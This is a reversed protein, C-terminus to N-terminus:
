FVKGTLVNRDLMLSFMAKLLLFFVVTLKVDVTFPFFKELQLVVFQEEIIDDMRIIVVATLSTAPAGSERGGPAGRGGAATNFSSEPFCHWHRSCRWSATLRWKFCQFNPGFALLKWLIFFLSCPLSLYLVDSQCPGRLWGPGPLSLALFYTSDPTPKANPSQSAPYVANGTLRLM